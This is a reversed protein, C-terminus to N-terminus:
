IPCKSDFQHLILATVFAQKLEVLALKAKLTFFGAGSKKGNHEEIVQDDDIENIINTCISENAASGSM